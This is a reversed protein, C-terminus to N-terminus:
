LAGKFLVIPGEASSCELKNGAKGAFFQNNLCVDWALKDSRLCGAFLSM